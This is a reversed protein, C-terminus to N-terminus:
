KNGAVRSRLAEAHDSLWLRGQDIDARWATMAGNGIRPALAYFVIVALALMMAAGFGIGYGSRRRPSVPVPLSGPKGPPAATPHPLTQTSAQQKTKEDHPPTEADSQMPAPRMLTAALRAADPLAPAPAADAQPPATDAEPRPNAASTDAEPSMVRNRRDSQPKEASPPLTQPLDPVADATLAGDVLYRASAADDVIAEFPHLAPDTAPAAAAARAPEALPDTVTQVPWIIDDSGRAPEDAPPQADDHPLDHATPDHPLIDAPIDHMGAQPLHPAEPATAPKAPIHDRPALAQAVQKRTENRRATLERETEERLISLIDDHLPRHLVSRAEAEFEPAPDTDPASIGPNQVAAAGPQFWVHSCASCEVDRGTAPIVSDAIEYHAQCRPCILRMLEDKM